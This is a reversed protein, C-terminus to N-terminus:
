DGFGNGNSKGGGFISALRGTFANRLIRIDEIMGRKQAYYRAEMAAVAPETRGRRATAYTFVGPFYATLEDRLANDEPARLPEQGCLWWRACVAGAMRPTLDLGLAYFLRVLFADCARDSPHFVRLRRVHRRRSHAQRCEFRGYRFLRLLGYGIAFPALQLCLLFLALGWGAVARYVDRMERAPPLRALLWTDDLELVVGDEPDVLRNGAAIKERIEVNRGVYTDALVVCRALLAQRDVVVHNGIVACPGVSALPGIRCDNGLIVSPAVEVSPPIIVNYGVCSGDAAGYGPALYRSMEGGALLMNLAFFDKVSEVPAPEIGLDRFSHAREPSMAGGLLADLSAADTCVACLSGARGDHRYLGGAAPSAPGSDTLRRPFLPGSLFLLGDRWQEPDRHLFAFPNRDDRLFSYHIRLGWRSGDGAYAEIQEAGEGLVLQVESVGFDVSLEFWYELLPRNGLPVLPWPAAGLAEPWTRATGIHLVTRMWM